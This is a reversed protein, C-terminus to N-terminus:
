VVSHQNYVEWLYSMSGWSSIGNAINMSQKQIGFATHSSQLLPSLTLYCLSAEAESKGFMAMFKQAKHM